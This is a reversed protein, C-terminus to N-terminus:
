SAGKTTPRSRSPRAKAATGAGDTRTETAPSRGGARSRDATVEPQDVESEKAELEEAEPEEARPPYPSEVREARHGDAWKAVEDEPLAVIDGVQWSFDAGGVSELIRMLPM